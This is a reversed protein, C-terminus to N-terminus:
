DEIHCDKFASLPVKSKAVCFDIEAKEEETLERREVNAAVAIEFARNMAKNSQELIKNFKDNDM